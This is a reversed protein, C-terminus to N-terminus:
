FLEVQSEVPLDRISERYKMERSVVTLPPTEKLKKVRVRGTDPYFVVKRPYIDGLDSSVIPIRETELYDLVFRINSQGVDTMAAMVRGGGFVKVELNGRQGGYQLITNILHEMAYNGYRTSAGIIEQREDRLRQDTIVPLMFHNMGGVRTVRDRICAAVCSGLVTVIEEDRTTVYFEGPLVKAICINDQESWIRRIQEFGPLCPPIRADKRMM